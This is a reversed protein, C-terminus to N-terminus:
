DEGIRRIALIWFQNESGPVLPLGRRPRRPLDEAKPGHITLLGQRGQVLLRGGALFAGRLEVRGGAPVLDNRAVVTAELSCNQSGLGLWATGRGESAGMSGPMEGGLGLVPENPDKKGDRNLDRFSVGGPRGVLFYIRLGRRIPRVRGQVYLNGDVLFVLSDTTASIHTERGPLGVWLNGPVRIVSVRAGGLALSVERGDPDPGLFYDEQDTSTGLFRIPFDSCAQLVHREGGEGLVLDARSAFDSGLLSSIWPVESEPAKGPAKEPASEERKGNRGLRGRGNRGLRGRIGRIFVNEDPKCPDGEGLAWSYADPLSGRVFDALYKRAVDRKKESGLTCLVSSRNRRPLWLVEALDRPHSSLPGEPLTMTGGRHLLGGELSRLVVDEALYSGRVRAQTKALEASWSVPIAVLLLVLALYAGSVLVLMSPLSSFRVFGKGESTKVDCGWPSLGFAKSM